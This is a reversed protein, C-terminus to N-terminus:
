QPGEGPWSAPHLTQQLAAKERELTAIKQTLVEIQNHLDDLPNTARENRFYAAVEDLFDRMADHQKALRPSWPLLSSM